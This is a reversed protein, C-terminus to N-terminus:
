RLWIKDHDTGTNRLTGALGPHIEKASIEIDKPFYGFPDAFV